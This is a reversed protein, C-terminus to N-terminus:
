NLKNFFFLSDENCDDLKFMEIYDKLVIDPRLSGSEWYDNGGYTTIRKNQVYVRKKVSDLFTLYREDDTIMDKISSYNPNIWIDLKIQKAVITEISLPLSGTSNNNSWPYTGGADKVLKSNYSNGGPIYWTGNYISSFLVNVKNTEQIQKKLKLYNQEIKEFIEDALDEKNYLVGFFKIWEAKGLPHTEQWDYNNIYTINAKKLKELQKPVGGKNGITILIDPKNSLIYELNLQNIGGIQKIKEQEIRNLVKKNYIYKKNEVGIISNIFGLTDIMNLYSVSFPIISKIPTELVIEGPKKKYNQNKNLLVITQEKKYNFFPNYIILKKINDDLIIDFCKSYKVDSISNEKSYTYDNISNCSAIVLIIIFSNILRIM